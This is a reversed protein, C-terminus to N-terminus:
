KISEDELKIGYENCTDKLGLKSLRTLEEQVIKKPSMNNLEITDKVQRAIENIKNNRRLSEKFIIRLKKVDNNSLELSTFEDVRLRRLVNVLYDSYRGGSMEDVEVFDRVTPNTLKKKEKTEPEEQEDKVEEKPEEQKPSPQEPKPEPQTDQPKEKEPKSLFENANEFNLLKAVELEAMKRLPVSVNFNEILKTLRDLRANIEEEGPLNWVFDIETDLGNAELLPKFIQEEVISEIEEQISRIKRQYAELQVKALGEPINGAGWLVIPIEMGFALKEMDYVQIDTLNKGIEGFDIVSMDVNGDTVWETRNTMYQLSTKFADVDEPNVAEGSAGVKAHIPAGAKRSVLKHLDDDNLILNEITRENSWVIGIGYADGSIKNVRLHAIESPKFPIVKTKSTTFGSVDGVWQNYGIVISHKNRRVYMDNANIVRIKAEELDIEIFGNGKLFGERIWERLVTAFDTQRIFKNLFLKSEKSKAQISFDGVISDTVKNVAGSVLGISKYSQEMDEFSFPHVIGLSKPFRVEKDIVEGKFSETVYKDEPKASIYGKLNERITKGTDDYKNEM